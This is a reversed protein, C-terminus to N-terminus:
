PGIRWRSVICKFYFLQLFIELCLIRVRKVNLPQSWNAQNLCLQPYFSQNIFFYPIKIARGIGGYFAREIWHTSPCCPWNAFRCRQVKHNCFPKRKGPALPAWVFDDTMRTWTGILTLIPVGVDVRHHHLRSNEPKKTRLEVPSCQAWAYKLYYFPM